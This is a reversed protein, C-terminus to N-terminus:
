SMLSPNIGALSGINGKKGQCDQTWRDHPCPMQVSRRPSIAAPVSDSDSYQCIISAGTVPRHPLPIQVDVRDLTRSGSAAKRFFCRDGLDWILIFFSLYIHLILVHRLFIKKSTMM